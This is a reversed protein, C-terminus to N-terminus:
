KIVTEMKKIIETPTLNSKVLYDSAGLKKGKAVDEDQGLNTLLIVPIKKWTPSEKIKELVAFGDIKPIIVDLLIVDPKFNALKDLGEQGDFAIEVEYGTKTLKTQYLRSLTRDDEIMLIKKAPKNAM